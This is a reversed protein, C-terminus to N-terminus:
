RLPRTPKARSPVPRRKTTRPRPSTTLPEVSDLYSEVLHLVEDHAEPIGVSEELQMMKPIMALLFLLSGPSAAGLAYQDSWRAALAELQVKRSRRVLAAIEAQIPTRHNALALLEMLLAASTEDTSFEWIVRLPQDPREDLAALLRELNADSRRRLLALFLDDLTPFYYQVLGATVGGLAAVSRYTVAVYGDRLILQETADLLVARTKSTESGVRRRSAM